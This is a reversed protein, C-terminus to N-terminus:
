GEARQEAANVRRAVYENMRAVLRETVRRQGDRLRVLEWPTLRLEVGEFPNHLRIDGIDPDKTPM